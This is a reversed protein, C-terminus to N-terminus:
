DKFLRRIGLVLQVCLSVVLFAAALGLVAVDILLGRFGIVGFIM